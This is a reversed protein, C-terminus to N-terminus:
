GLLHTIFFGMTFSVIAITAATALSIHEMWRLRRELKKFETSVAEFGRLPAEADSPGEIMEIRTKLDKSIRQLNEIKLERANRLSETFAQFRSAQRANDMLDTVHHKLQENQKELRELKAHLREIKIATEAVFSDRSNWPGPSIVDRAASDNATLM